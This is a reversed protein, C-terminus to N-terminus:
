SLLLFMYNIIIVNETNTAMLENKLKTLAVVDKRLDVLTAELENNKEAYKQADMVKVKLEAILAENTEQESYNQVKLKAYNNANEEMLNLLRSETIKLRANDFQLKSIVQIKNVYNQNSDISNRYDLMERSSSRYSPKGFTSKTTLTDETPNLMLKHASQLLLSVAPSSPSANELSSIQSPSNFKGTPTANTVLVTKDAKMPDAKKSHKKM